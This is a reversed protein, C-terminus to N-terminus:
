ISITNIDATESQTSKKEFPFFSLLRAPSHDNNQGFLSLGAINLGGALHEMFQKQLLMGLQAAINEPIQGTLQINFNFDEFLYPNGWKVLTDIQRQSLTEKIRENIPIPTSKERYHDFFVVCKSAFDTLRKDQGLPEISIQGNRVYVKLVSTQFSPLTQCFESTRLCFEKFLVNKQLSFPPYIVAGFGRRRPAFIAKKHLDRPLGLTLISKPIKHRVADYGIWASGLKWFKGNPNHSSTFFYRDYQTM